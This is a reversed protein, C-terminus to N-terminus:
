CRHVVYSYASYHLRGEDRPIGPFSYTEVSVVFPEAKSPM